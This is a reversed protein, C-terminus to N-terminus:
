MENSLLGEILVSLGTDFSAELSQPMGFGGRSELDVFGHLYSRLVRIAHIAADGEVGVTVLIERFLNVVSVLAEYLENDEGPGPAPFTASLLGPHRKAYERYARAMAFLADRSENDRAANSLYNQLEKAAFLAIERRLGKLGDVYHYLSPSRVALKEAVDRLNLNEIGQEEVIAVAAEIVDGHTLGVKKAM